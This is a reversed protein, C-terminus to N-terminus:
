QRNEPSTSTRFSAYWVKAARSLTILRQRVLQSM